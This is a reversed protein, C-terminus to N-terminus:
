QDEPPCFFICVEPTERRSFAFGYGGDNRACRLLGNDGRAGFSPNSRQARLSPSSVATEIIVASRGNQDLPQPGSGTTAHEVSHEFAEDCPQDPPMDSSNLQSEA